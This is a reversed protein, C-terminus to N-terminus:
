LSENETHLEVIDDSLLGFAKKIAPMMFGMQEGKKAQTTVSQSNFVKLDEVTENRVTKETSFIQMALDMRKDSNDFLEDFYQENIEFNEQM